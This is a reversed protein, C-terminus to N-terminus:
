QWPRAISVTIAQGLLKEIPKKLYNILQPDNMVDDFFPRPKQGREIMTMGEVHSKSNYNGNTIGRDSEWRQMAQSMSMNQQQTGWAPAGHNVISGNVGKNIFKWYYEKDGVQIGAVITGGEITVPTPKFSQRLRRSANADYKDLNATIEDIVGQMLDKLLKTLPSDATNNLIASATGVNLSDLKGAEEQSTLM